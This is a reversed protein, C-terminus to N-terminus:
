IQAHNFNSLQQKSECEIFVYEREYMCGCPNAIFLIFDFLEILISRFDCFTNKESIGTLTATFTTCSFFLIFLHLSYLLPCCNQPHEHSRHHHSPLLICLYSLLQFNINQLLMKNRFVEILPSILVANMLIYFYMQGM